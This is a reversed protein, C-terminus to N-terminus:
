QGADLPTTEIMWAQADGPSATWKTGIPLDQVWVIEGQEDVAVPWSSRQQAPAGHLNFLEKLKKAGSRGRAHYRDGPRWNRVHLRQALLAGSLAAENKADVLVGRLLVGAEPIPWAGPMRIAYDYMVPAYKEVDNKRFFAFRAPQPRKRTLRLSVEERLTWEGVSAKELRERAREVEGYDLRAGAGEAMVRLLRRQTAEDEAAYLALELGEENARGAIEAIRRRWHEEEAAALRATQALTQKIAPNWSELLPTLEHRVRNRLPEDSANTADERWAQGLGQLYREIEARRVGLLPRAVRGRGLARTMPIAALGATGAGRLLRLLVTEAQDDMTHATAITTAEGDAILREFFAYRLERAATELSLKKERAWGPADVKEIRCPLSFKAALERVFEADGDAEAGRIGHNLHAVSLRLGLEERLEVLARLMAVSDAGGSVAAAVAEGPAFLRAKKLQERLAQIV